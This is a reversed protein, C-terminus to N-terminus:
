RGRAGFSLGVLVHLAPNLLCADGGAIPFRARAITLKAEALVAVRQKLCKTRSVSLQGAPGSLYYGGGLPGGVEPQHRGRVTTEPHAIVVGGGARLRWANTARTFNFLFLNFGHTVAFAQVEVPRNRLYLKDHILEAEVGAAAHPALRVAYYLPFSLPRTRFQASLRVEPWGEQRLVLPGPGNFVLGTLLSLEWGHVSSPTACVGAVALLLIVKALPRLSRERLVARRMDASM